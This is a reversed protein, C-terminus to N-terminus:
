IDAEEAGDILKKLGFELYDIRSKLSENELVYDINKTKVPEGRFYDLEIGYHNSLQEVFSFSIREKKGSEIDSIFSKSVGTAKALQEGTEGKSKRLLKIKENINMSM